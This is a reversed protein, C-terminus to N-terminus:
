VKGNLTNTFLIYQRYREKYANPISLVCKLNYLMHAVTAHNKNLLRGIKSESMGEQKLQAAVLTRGWVNTAEQSKGIESIGIVGAATKLLYNLHIAEGRSCFSDMELSRYIRDMICIREEPPLQLINDIIEEIM